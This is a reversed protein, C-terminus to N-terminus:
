FSFSVNTFAQNCTRIITGGKHGMGEGLSQGSFAAMFDTERLFTAGM